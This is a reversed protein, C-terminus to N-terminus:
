RWPWVPEEKGPKAKLRPKAKPKERRRKVRQHLKKQNLSLLQFLQQLSASIYFSATRVMNAIVKLMVLAFKPMIFTVNTEEVANAQKGFTAPKPMKRALPPLALASRQLAPDGQHSPGLHEQDRGGGKGEAKRLAVAAIVRRLAKPHAAELELAERVVARKRPITPM